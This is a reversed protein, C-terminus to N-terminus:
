DADGEDMAQQFDIMAATRGWEDTPESTERPVDPFQAGPPVGKDLVYMDVHETASRMMALYAGLIDSAKPHGMQVNPMKAEILSLEERLEETLELVRRVHQAREDTM